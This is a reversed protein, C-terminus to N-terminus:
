YRMFHMYAPNNHYDTPPLLVGPSEAENMFEVEAYVPGQSPVTQRMLLGALQIYYLVCNHCAIILNSISRLILVMICAKITLVDGKM